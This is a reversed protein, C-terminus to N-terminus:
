NELSRVIEFYCRKEALNFREHLDYPYSLVASAAIDLCAKLLSDRLESNVAGDSSALRVPAVFSRLTEMLRPDPREKLFGRVFDFAMPLNLIDDGATQNVREVHERLFERLLAVEVDQAKGDAWIMELLPIVDILYIREGEIGFGKLISLAEERDM